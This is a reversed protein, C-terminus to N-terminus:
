VTKSFNHSGNEQLYRDFPMAMNRTFLMGLSTLKIKKSNLNVLGENAFQELESWAKEFHKQFNIKYRTEFYQISIIRLFILRLM